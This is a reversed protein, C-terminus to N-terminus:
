NIVLVGETRPCIYLSDYLGTKQMMKPFYYECACNTANLTTKGQGVDIKEDEILAPFATPLFAASHNTHPTV